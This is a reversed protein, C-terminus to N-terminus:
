LNQILIIIINRKISVENSHYDMQEPSQDYRAKRSNEM